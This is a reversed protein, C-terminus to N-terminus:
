KEQVSFIIERVIKELNPPLESYWFHMYNPWGQHSSFEILIEKQELGNPDKTIFFESVLGNTIGKETNAHNFQPHNGVYASLIVQEEYIFKYINFDEVPTEKKISVTSPLKLSFGEDKYRKKADCSVVSLCVGCTVLLIIFRM